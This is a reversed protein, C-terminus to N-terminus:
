ALSDRHTAVLKLGDEVPFQAAGRIKWVPGDSVGCGIFRREDDAWRM